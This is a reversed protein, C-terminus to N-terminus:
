ANFKVWLFGIIFNVSSLFLPEKQYGVMFAWISNNHSVCSSAISSSTALGDQAVGTPWLGADDNQAWRHSICSDDNLQKYLYEMLRRLPCGPSFQAPSWFWESYWVSKLNNALLLLSFLSSIIQCSKFVAVLKHYKIGFSSNIHNLSGEQTSCHM